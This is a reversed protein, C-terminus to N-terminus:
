GAAPPLKVHKACETALVKLDPDNVHALASLTRREYAEAVGPRPEDFPSTCVFELQFGDHGIMLLVREPDKPLARGVAMDIEESSGADSFPRLLRAVELWRRNASEIGRLAAEFEAEHNWLEELVTKGGDRQVRAIIDEPSGAGEASIVITTSFIVVALVGKSFHRHGRFEAAIRAIMGCNPM